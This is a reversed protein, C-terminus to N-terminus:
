LGPDEDALPTAGRPPNDPMSRSRRAKQLAARLEARSLLGDGNSDMRDFAQGSQGQAVWEARNLSPKPAAAAPMEAAILQFPLVAMM